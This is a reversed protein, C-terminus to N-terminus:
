ANDVSIEASGVLYNLSGCKPCKTEIMESPRLAKVTSRFLMKKCKRCHVPEFSGSVGPENSSKPAAARTEVTLM